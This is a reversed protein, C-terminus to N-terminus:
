LAEPAALIDAYLARTEPGPAIGQGRRLAARLLHFQRLAMGREGADRYAAMLRRHWEEREPEAACLERLHPVADAPRGTAVLADALAGLAAAREAALADRAARAWDESDWEELFPRASLEVAASLAEVRAAPDRAERARQVLARMRVADWTDGDGLALTVADGDGRLVAHPSGGGVEPEVARRLDHLTSRLAAAARDAPLDPWLWECLRDRSAHGGAALLAALLTRSKQRTIADADLPHGERLVELRGFSTIAIRARPRDLRQNWAARAAERVAADRDRLLQELVTAPTGADAAARALLVRAEPPATELLVAMRTVVEGGCAAALGAVTDPPGIGDRLAAALLEPAIRRDIRCWADEAGPADSAAIAAALHGAFGPGDGAVVAAVAHAHVLAWPAGTREAAELGSAALEGALSVDGAALAMLAGDPALRAREILPARDALTELLARLSSM